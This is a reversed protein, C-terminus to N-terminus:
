QVNGDIPNLKMKWICVGLELRQGLVCRGKDVVVHDRRNIYEGVGGFTEQM